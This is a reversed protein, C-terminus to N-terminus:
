VLMQHFIIINKLGLDMSFEVFTPFLVYKLVRRKKVNIKISKRQMKAGLNAEFFTLKKSTKKFNPGLPAWSAGLPEWSAGLAEWSAGLLSWSAGLLSWSGGLLSWSAKLFGGLSSKEDELGQNKYYKVTIKM